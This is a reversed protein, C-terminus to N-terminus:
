KEASKKIRNMISYGLGIEPLGEILIYNINLKDCLNYINFIKQACTILDNRSGRPFVHIYDKYQNLIKQHSNIFEQTLILGLKIHPSGSIKTDFKEKFIEQTLDNIIEVKANPSYHRHLNGPSINSLQTSYEVSVNKNDMFLDQLDEKSVFGPRMIIINYSIKCDGDTMPLCQSYEDVKVVTSEIGVNCDGGDIILDLKNGFYEYVMQASTPSPKTSINASPAAIALDCTKLLKLAVQNSPIRIGVFPNSSVIDPINERKRLLITIPGPMLKEIIKKEIPNSIIGYKSIDKKYGVHVILPNDSPRNKLQFIKSVAKTDLANAGLGYVTETPFAVLDGDLLLKKALQFTESNPSKINTM